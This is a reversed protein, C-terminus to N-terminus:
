WEMLHDHAYFYMTWAYETGERVPHREKLSDHIGQLTRHDIKHRWHQPDTSVIAYKSWIHAFVSFIHINLIGVSIHEFSVEALVKGCSLCPFKMKDLQKQYRANWISPLSLTSTLPGYSAHSLPLSSTSSSLLFIVLRRWARGGWEM